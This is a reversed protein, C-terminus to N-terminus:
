GEGQGMTAIKVTTKLKGVRGDQYTIETEVDVASRGDALATVLDRYRDGLDSRRLKRNRTLESEDPDLEKHLNVFRSIRQAEPLGKNVLAIEREILEYVEPQQSLDGFTTYSVRRADAWHGTNAADVVIVASLSDCGAGAVVWADRIYPSYKLRSEVEQPPIVDGSPLTILDNLRDVFVLEDGDLRCRDGTSVWGDTLARDTGQPDNYYGLFAGPHRVLMEGSGSQKIEV